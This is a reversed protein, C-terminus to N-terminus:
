LIQNRGPAGLESDPTNVKPNPTISPARDKPIGWHAQLQQLLIDQQQRFAEIQSGRNIISFWVLGRDRTPLVGSLACVENLTGTKVVANKPISRDILTGIDTGSIPFLDSVTFGNREAYRAIATFMQATAHPAIRNEVGLGSGNALNIENQPLGAAAAAKQATVQPGGLSRSLSEAMINNSHVNLRKVLHLLPLSQHKVIPKLNSQAVAQNVDLNEIVRVNGRIVLTPKRPKPDDFQRYQEAIDGVWTKSNFAQKLFEGGQAHDFDFNMFFNGTIILEGAVEQIGVQNLANGLAIAEEWVFMPDGNGQVVLNGQLVGNQIPGTAYVITEFQHQPGWTELAALSSAIKTLSAASLPTMGQHNVILSPGSQLWVGQENVNLGKSQLGALYRKVIAEAEPDPDGQLADWPTNQLTKVGVADPLLMEKMVEPKTPGFGTLLALIPILALGGVRAFPFRLLPFRPLLFRPMM